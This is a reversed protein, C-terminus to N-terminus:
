PTPMQDSLHAIMQPATMRGWRRQADPQMRGIRECVEARTTDNFMTRM